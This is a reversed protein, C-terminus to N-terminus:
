IKYATILENGNCFYQIDQKGTRRLILIRDHGDHNASTFRTKEAVSMPCDNTKSWVIVGPQLLSVPIVRSIENLVMESMTDDPATKILLDIIHLRSSTLM